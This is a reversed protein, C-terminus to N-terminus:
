GGWLGGPTAGARRGAERLTVDATVCAELTRKVYMIVM